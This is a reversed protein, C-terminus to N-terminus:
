MVQKDLLMMRVMYCNECAGVNTTVFAKKAAMGEMVALPQGESISTLALFDMRGLYKMIDIRGTFHVDTLELYEVMRLCEEYYEKSEEYPGMVYLVANEVENKVIRFAQLLTKIDKIPVVRVIAGINVQGEHEIAKLAEFRITDIGNPITLMKSKPCGLELQLERNVTFLSTVKSAHEYACRSFNKFYKIWIDKYYNKVWDARIIEEERERTYIGHESLIFPKKILIALM